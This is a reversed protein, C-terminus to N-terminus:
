TGDLAVPRNIDDIDGSACLMAGRQVRPQGGTLAIVCDAPGRTCRGARTTGFKERMGLTSLQVVLLRFARQGRVVFFADASAM